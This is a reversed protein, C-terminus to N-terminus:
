KYKDPVSGNKRSTPKVGMMKKALGPYNTIGAYTRCFGENGNEWYNKCNKVNQEYDSAGGRNKRSKRLRKNRLTAM